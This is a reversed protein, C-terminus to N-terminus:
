GRRDRMDSGREGEELDFDDLREMHVSHDGHHHLIDRERPGASSARDTTLDAGGGVQPFQDSRTIRFEGEAVEIRAVAARVDYNYAVADRVLGQLKEDKFVEWWAVDALSKADSAALIVTDTRYTKPVAVAPRQYKKGTACGTLLSLSLALIIARTM